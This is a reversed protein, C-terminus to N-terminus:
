QLTQFMSPVPSCWKIIHCGLPTLDSLSHPSLPPPHGHSRILAALYAMGHTHMLLFMGCESLSEGHRANRSSIKPRPQADLGKSTPPVPLPAARLKVLTGKQAVESCVNQLPPRPGHGRVRAWTFAYTTSPFCNPHHCGRSSASFAIASALACHKTSKNTRSQNPPPLRGM